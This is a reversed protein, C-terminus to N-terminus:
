SELVFILLHKQSATCVKTQFQTSIKERAKLTGPTLEFSGLLALWRQVAVSATMQRMMNQLQEM